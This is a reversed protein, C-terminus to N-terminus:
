SNAGVGIYVFDVVRESDHTNLRAYYDDWYQDNMVFWVSDTSNITLAIGTSIARNATVIYAIGYDVFTGFSRFSLNKRVANSFMSTPPSVVPMETLAVKSQTLYEAQSIRGERLLRDLAALKADLLPASRAYAALNPMPSPEIAQNRLGREISADYASTWGILAQVAAHRAPDAAIAEATWDAAENMAFLAPSFHFRADVIDQRDSARFGATLWTRPMTLKKAEVFARAREWATPGVANPGFNSVEVFQCGTEWGSKYRTILHLHPGTCSKARGWGDNVPIANANAELVAVVAENEIRLLVASQIAGYAGLAPMDFTQKGVGAVVWQGAPLPIHVAGLQIAEAVTEGPALAMATSATAFWGAAVFLAAALATRRRSYLDLTFRVHATRM